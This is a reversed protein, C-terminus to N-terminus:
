RHETLRDREPPRGTEPTGARLPYRWVWWLVGASGGVTYLVSWV